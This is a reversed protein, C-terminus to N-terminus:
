PEDTQTVVIWGTKRLQETWEQSCLNLIKENNENMQYLCTPEMCPSSWTMQPVTSPVVSAQAMSEYVSREEHVEKVRATRWMM